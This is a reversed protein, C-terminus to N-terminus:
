REIQTDTCKNTQGDTQRLSDIRKKSTWNQVYVRVCVCMCVWVGVCVCVGARARQTKVLIIVLLM